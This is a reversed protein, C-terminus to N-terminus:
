VRWARRAERLEVRVMGTEGAAAVWAGLCVGLAPGEPMDLLVLDGRQAMLPKVEERKRAEAIKEVVAELGATTRASAPLGAGGYRKLIRAAGRASKYKGRFPAAFDIGSVAQLLDCAFLACDNRGWEFPRDRRARIAAHLREPFDHPKPVIM